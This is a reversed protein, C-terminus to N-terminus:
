TWFILHFNPGQLIRPFGNSCPYRYEYEVIALDYSNFHLDGQAQKVKLYRFSYIKM